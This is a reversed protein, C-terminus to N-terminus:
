KFPNHWKSMDPYKGNEIFHEVKDKGDKVTETVQEKAWEKIWEIAQDHVWMYIGHGMHYFGHGLGSIAARTENPCVVMPVVVVVTLRLGWKILSKM